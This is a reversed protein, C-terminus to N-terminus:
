SAPFFALVFATLAIALTGVTIATARLQSIPGGQQGARSSLARGASLAVAWVLAGASICALAVILDTGRLPWIRRLIVAICAAVALGSRNWALETRERASSRDVPTRDPV